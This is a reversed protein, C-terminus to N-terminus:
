GLRLLVFGSQIWKAMNVSDRFLHMTTSFTCSSIGLLAFCVLCYVAMTISRDHIVSSDTTHYTATTTIAMYRSLLRLCDALSWM